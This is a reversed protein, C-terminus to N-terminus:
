PVACVLPDRRVPGCTEVEGVLDIAGHRLTVRVPAVPRDAGTEVIFLDEADLRVAFRWPKAQVPRLQVSRRGDDTRCVVREGGEPNRRCPPFTFTTHWDAADEVALALGRALAEVILADWLAVDHLFARLRASGDHDGTPDPRLRIEAVGLAGPADDADCADGAGDGDLDAQGANPDVPCNDLVSPVGDGYIDEDSGVLV